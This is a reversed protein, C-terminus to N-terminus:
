QHGYLLQCPRQFPAVLASIEWMIKRHITHSKELSIEFRAMIVALTMNSSFMIFCCNIKKGGGVRWGREWWRWWGVAKQRGGEGDRQWGQAQKVRRACVYQATPFSQTKIVPEMSNISYLALGSKVKCFILTNTINQKKTKEQGAPSSPVNEAEM